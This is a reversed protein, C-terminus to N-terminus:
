RRGCNIGSPSAYLSRGKQTESIGCVRIIHTKTERSLKGFYELDEEYTRSNKESSLHFIVEIGERKFEDWISSQEIDEGLLIGFRLGGMIFISETEGKSVQKEVPSKKEYFDVLVLSQVIPSASVLKKEDNYRYHSGGMIVGQYSESIELLHDQYQKEHSTADEPSSAQFFHPFGEPLLLFNAKQSAIKTIEEKSLRKHLNKQYISIKITPM